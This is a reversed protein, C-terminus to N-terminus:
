YYVMTLFLGQPPAKIGAKKRDGSRLIEEFDGSTIKGLGADAVTGVINRVMHKLFGEAEFLFCIM